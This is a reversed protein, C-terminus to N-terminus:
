ENGEKAKNVMEELKATKINSPFELGLEKAEKLLEERSIPINDLEENEISSPNDVWGNELLEEISDVEEDFLKGLPNEKNFLFTM